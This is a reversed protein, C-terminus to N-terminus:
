HCPLIKCYNVMSLESMAINRTKILVTTGSHVDRRCLKSPRVSPVIVTSIESVAHIGSGVRSHQMSKGRGVLAVTSHAGTGRVRHM